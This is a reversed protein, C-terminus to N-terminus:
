HQGTETVRRETCAFVHPRMMLAICYRLIIHSYAVFIATLWYRNCIRFYYKKFERMKKDSTTMRQHDCQYCFFPSCHKFASYGQPM